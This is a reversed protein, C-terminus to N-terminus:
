HVHGCIQRWHQCDHRGPDFSGVTFLFPTLFSLCSLFISAINIHKEVGALEKLTHKVFFYQVKTELNITEGKQLFGNLAVKLEALSSKDLPQFLFSNRYWKAFVVHVVSVTGIILLTM